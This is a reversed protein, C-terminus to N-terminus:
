NISAVPSRLSRLIDINEQMKYMDIKDKKTRWKKDILKVVANSLSTRDHCFSILVSRSFDILNWALSNEQKQQESANSPLKDPHYKLAKRRFCKMVDDERIEKFNRNPLPVELILLADVIVEAKQEDEPKTFWGLKESLKSTAVAGVVGGIISGVFGLFVAGPPGGILGGIISGLAAGATGALGAAANTMLSQTALLAFTSACTRGLFFDLSHTLVSCGFGGLPGIFPYRLLKWIDVSKTPALVLTRCEDSSNTLEEWDVKTIQHDKLQNVHFVQSCSEHFYFELKSPDDKCTLCLVVDESTDDLSDTETCNPAGCTFSCVSDFQYIHGDKSAFKGHDKKETLIQSKPFIVFGQFYTKILESYAELSHNKIIDLSNDATYEIASQLVREVIKPNNNLSEIVVSREYMQILLFKGIPVYALKFFDGHLNSPPLKLVELAQQVDGVVNESSISAVTKLCTEFFFTTKQIQAVVIEPLQIKQQLTKFVHGVSLVIPVVDNVSAFSFVNRIFNKDSLYKEFEYNGFMPAGFTMNVVNKSNVFLEDTHSLTQLINFHVLTSVAGGLSHGCTLIHDVENIIAIEFFSELTVKKMRDLFGGHIKGVFRDDSQFGFNFDTQIDELTESGRFAIILTGKRKTPNESDSVFISAAQNEFYANAAILRTIGHFQKTKQLYELPKDQYCSMASFLATQVMKKDEWKELGNVWLYSRGAVLPTNETTIPVRNDEDDTVDYLVQPIRDVKFACAIEDLINPSNKFSKPDSDFDDLYVIIRSM